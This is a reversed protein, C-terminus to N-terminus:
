RPWSDWGIQSFGYRRNQSVTKYARISANEAVYRRVLDLHEPESAFIEWCCSDSYCLRFAAHKEVFEPQRDHRTRGYAVAVEIPEPGAVAWLDLSEEGFDDAWRSISGPRWLQVQEENLRPDDVTTDNNGDPDHFALPAGMWPQCEIIWYHKDFEARLPEFCPWFWAAPAGRNDDLLRLLLGDM